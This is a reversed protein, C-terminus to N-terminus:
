VRPLVLTVAAVMTFLVTVYVTHWWQGDTLLDQYNRLGVFQTPRASALRADTFSQYITQLLPVLAVLVVVLLAPALLMWALRTQRRVLESTIKPAAIPVARAQTQAEVSM